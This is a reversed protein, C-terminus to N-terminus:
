GKLIIIHNHNNEIDETKKIKTDENNRILDMFPKIGFDKLFFDKFDSVIENQVFIDAFPIVAIPSTKFASELAYKSVKHNIITEKYIILQRTFPHLLDLPEGVKINLLLKTLETKIRKGDPSV